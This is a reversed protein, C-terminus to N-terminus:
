KKGRFVYILTLGVVLAAGGIGFAKWNIPSAPAEVHVPGESPPAAPAPSSTSPVSAVPAPASTQYGKVAVLLARQEDDLDHTEAWVRYAGMAMRTNNGMIGDAGTDGVKYGQKILREQLAKVAPDATAGLIDYGLADM